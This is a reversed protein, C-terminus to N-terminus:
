LTQPSAGLGGVVEWPAAMQMALCAWTWKAGLKSGGPHFSHQPLEGRLPEGSDSGWGQWMGWGVPPGM